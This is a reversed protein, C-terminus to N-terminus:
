IYPNLIKIEGTVKYERWACEAWNMIEEILGNDKSAEIGVYDNGADFTEWRTVYELLEFNQADESTHFPVIEFEGNLKLILRNNFNDNGEKIENVLQQRTPM